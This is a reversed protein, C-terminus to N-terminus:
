RGAKALLQDLERNADELSKLVRDLARETSAKDMIGNESAADTVAQIRKATGRVTKMVAALRAKLEQDLHRKNLQRAKAIAELCLHGIRELKDM